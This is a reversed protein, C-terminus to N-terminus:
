LLYSSNSGFQKEPNFGFQKFFDKTKEEFSRRAEYRNMKAETSKGFYPKFKSFFNKSKINNKAQELKTLVMNNNKSMHTSIPAGNDPDYNFKSMMEKRAEEETRQINDTTKKIEKQQTASTAEKYGQKTASDKQQFGKSQKQADSSRQQHGKKAELDKEWYKNSLKQGDRANQIHNMFSDFDKQRYKNVQEWTATGDAIHSYVSTAGKRFRGAEDLVSNGFAGMKYAGTAAGVGAGLIGGRVAGEGFSGGQIASLTGGGIAGIGAGAAARKALAKGVGDTSLAQAINKAAGKALNTIGAM